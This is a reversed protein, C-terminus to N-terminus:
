TVVHANPLPCPNIPATHVTPHTSKQIKKVNELLTVRHKTTDREFTLFIYFFIKSGTVEEDNTVKSTM